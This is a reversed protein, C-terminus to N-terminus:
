TDAVLLATVVGLSTIATIGKPNRFRATAPNGNETYGAVGDGAILSSTGTGVLVMRIRNNNADAIFVADPNGSTPAKAVVAGAPINTKNNRASGHAHGATGTGAFTSVQCGVAVGDQTINFSIGAITISGSRASSSNSAVTYSVTTNGTGSSASTVTIWSNNS